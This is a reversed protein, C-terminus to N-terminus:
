PQFSESNLPSSTKEDDLRLHLEVARQLRIVRAPKIVEYDTEGADQIFRSTSSDDPLVIITQEPLPVIRLTIGINPWFRSTPQLLNTIAQQTSRSRATGNLVNLLSRRKLGLADALDSVTRGSAKLAREIKERSASM